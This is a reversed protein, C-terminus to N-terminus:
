KQHWIIKGYMKNKKKILDSTHLNHTGHFKHAGQM